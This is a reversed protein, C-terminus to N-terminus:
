AKVRTESLLPREQARIDQVERLDEHLFRLCTGLRPLRRQVVTHAERHRFLDSEVPCPTLLLSLPSSMGMGALGLPLSPQFEPWTTKHWCNDPTILPRCMVVANRLVPSLRLLLTQHGREGVSILAFCAWNRRM